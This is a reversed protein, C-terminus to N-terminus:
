GGGVAWGWRRVGGVGGEREVCNTSSCLDLSSDSYSNPKKTKWGRVKKKRRTNGHRPGDPVLIPGGVREVIRSYGGYTGSRRALM